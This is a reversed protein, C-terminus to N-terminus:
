ATHKLQYRPVTEHEDRPPKPSCLKELRADIVRLDVQLDKAWGWKDSVSVPAEDSEGGSTRFHQRILDDIRETVDRQHHMSMTYAGQRHQKSSEVFRANPMGIGRHERQSSPPWRRAQYDSLTLALLILLWLLAAVAFVQTVRQSYRLHMFFLMILAAKAVAITIATINNLWASEIEAAMVTAALLVLLALFVLVYTLPRAGDHQSEQQSTHQSM